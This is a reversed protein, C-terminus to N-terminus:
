EKSSNPYTDWFRIWWRYRILDGNKPGLLGALCNINQNDINIQTKQINQKITPGSYIKLNTISGIITM